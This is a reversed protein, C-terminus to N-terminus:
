LERGEESQDALTDQNSHLWFGSLLSTHLFCDVPEAKRPVSCPLSPPFYTYFPYSSDYSLGQQLCEKRHISSDKTDKCYVNTFPRTPCRRHCEEELDTASMVLQDRSRKGHTWSTVQPCTLPKEPPALTTFFGGALAPSKLSQPEIGTNPLDGPPSLPLGSWYEQRSFGM